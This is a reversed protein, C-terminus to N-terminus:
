GSAKLRLCAEFPLGEQTMRKLGSELKARDEPVYHRALEPWHGPSLPAAGHLRQFADNGWVTNSGVDLEWIGLGSRTALQEFCQLRQLELQSMVQQALAQLHRKQEGSLRRPRYDMLCLTGIAFGDPTVLPAGLYYRVYPPGTVLPNDQFCADVTADAVELFENELIAHACFSVDQSSSSIELGAQSKFWEDSEEVISVLAIPVDFLQTVSHTITDLAPDPSRNHRLYRWMARLRNLDNQPLRKAM